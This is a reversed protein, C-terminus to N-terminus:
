GATLRFHASGPVSRGFLRWEEGRKEQLSSNRQLRHFLDGHFNWPFLANMVTRHMAAADEPM